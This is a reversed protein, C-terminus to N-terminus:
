LAVRWISGIHPTVRKLKPYLNDGWHAIKPRSDDFYGNSSWSFVRFNHDFTYQVSGALTGVWIESTLLSGSNRIYLREEMRTTITGQNVTSPYYGCPM